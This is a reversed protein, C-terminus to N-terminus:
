FSARCPTRSASWGRDETIYRTLVGRLVREHSAFPGIATSELLLLIRQTLNRNTDEAGGIRHLLEHSFTLGGFIGEPGPTRDTVDRIARDIERQTTLHTASAQGDVLLTWDTDSNSTAEDRALSGFVVLSADDSPVLHSTATALCARRQVAAERAQRLTAM